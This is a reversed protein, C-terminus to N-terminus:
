QPLDTAVINYKFSGDHFRYKEARVRAQARPLSIYHPADPSDSELYYSILPPVDEPFGYTSLHKKLPKGDRSFVIGDSIESYVGLEMVQAPNGATFISVTDWEFNSFVESLDIECSGEESCLSDIAAVLNREIFSREIFGYRHLSACVLSGALMLLAALLCTLSLARRRM